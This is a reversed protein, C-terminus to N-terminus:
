FLKFGTKASMSHFVRLKSKFSTSFFIVELVTAIKTEGTRPFGGSM